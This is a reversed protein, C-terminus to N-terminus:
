YNKEIPMRNFIENEVMSVFPNQITVHIQRFSKRNFSFAMCIVIANIWYQYKWQFCVSRFIMRYGNVQGNKINPMKSEHWVIWGLNCRWINFKVSPFISMPIVYCRYNFKWKQFVFCKCVYENKGILQFIIRHIGVQLRSFEKNQLIPILKPNWKKDKKTLKKKGKNRRQETKVMNKEWEVKWERM